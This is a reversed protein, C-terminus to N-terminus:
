QKDSRKKRKFMTKMSLRKKGKQIEELYIYLISELEKEYNVVPANKQKNKSGPQIFDPSETIQPIFGFDETKLGQQGRKMEKTNDRHKSMTHKVAYNDIVRNYDTVDLGLVSKIMEANKDTVKGLSFVQKENTRSELVQKVFSVIGM